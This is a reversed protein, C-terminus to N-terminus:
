GWEQARKGHHNYRCQRRDVTGRRRIDGAESPRDVSAVPYSATIHEVGTWQQIIAHWSFLSNIYRGGAIKMDATTICSTLQNLDYNKEVGHLPTLPKTLKLTWRVYIKWCLKRTLVLTIGTWMRCIKFCITKILNNKWKIEIYVQQIKPIGFKTM